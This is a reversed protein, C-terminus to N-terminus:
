VSASGLYADDVKIIDRKRKNTLTSKKLSKYYLSVVSLPRTLYQVSDFEDRRKLLAVRRRLHPALGEKKNDFSAFVM